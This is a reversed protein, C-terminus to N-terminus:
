SSSDNDPVQFGAKFDQNKPKEEGGEEGRAKEKQKENKEKYERQKTLAGLRTQLKAEKNEVDNRIKSLITLTEKEGKELKVTSGEKKSEEEKEKLPKIGDDLAKKYASIVNINEVPKIKEEKKGNIIVGVGEDVRKLEKDELKGKKVMKEFETLPDVLKKELMSKLNDDKFADEKEGNIKNIAKNIDVISKGSFEAEVEERIAKSIQKGLIRINKDIKKTDVGEIGEFKARREMAEGRKKELDDSLEEEKEKEKTKIGAGEKMSKWVSSFLSDKPIEKGAPTKLSKGTSEVVQAAGRVPSSVFNAARKWLKTGFKDTKNVTFGKAFSGVKENSLLKGLGIGARSEKMAQAGRQMRNKAAGKIGNGIGKVAGMTANAGAIGSKQAAVISGILLGGIVLMRMGDQLITGLGSTNLDISIKEFKSAAVLSLYIFFGVAPAFFTWKTFSNWWEDWYKKLGPFVYFLCVIPILVFLFTLSVYRLLLMFAFMLMIITAVITFIVGFIVKSFATVFAVGIIGGTSAQDSPDPPLPDPSGLIFKQPGLVGAISASIDGNGDTAKSIFFNTLNNSFQVLLGTAALSFNVIIAMAILKPLLKRVGYEEYRIVTALAMIITLLVFGLNAIDRAVTWGITIVSPFAPDTNLININLELVAKALSAALMFLNGFIFQFFSGIAGAITTVIDVALSGLFAHAPFPTIVFLVLFVLLFVPVFKKILAYYKM